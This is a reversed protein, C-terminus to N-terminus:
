RLRRLAQQAETNLPDRAIALLYWGRAEELLGAAECARGFHTLDSPQNERDPQRVWNILDYLDDLHKARALYFEASSKDGSLLLSRGLESFSVRDYPEGDLAQQFYRIADKYDHRMVAIRGRIRALQPDDGTAEALLSTAEDVRGAVLRLEIRLAAARPDSRPLPELTHEVRSEMGPSHLFATALSLRSHRDEPDAKIFAELKEMSDLVWVSFHSLAWTLLEHHSLPTLRSLAKFEADVERRRLQMDLIYILEKHAGILNPDCALAQRFKAEAAPIRNRQREIRGALLFAQAALPDREPIHSLATLARDPQDGAIAIQARLSWDSATPARSRGIVGLKTRATALDGSRLADQAEDWLRQPDPRARLWLMGVVVIAIAAAGGLFSRKGFRDARFNLAPHLEPITM